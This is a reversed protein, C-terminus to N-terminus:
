FDDKLTTIRKCIMSDREEYCDLEKTSSLSLTYPENIKNAQIEIGDLIIKKISNVGVSPTVDIENSGKGRLNLVFTKM